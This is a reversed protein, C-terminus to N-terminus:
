VLLFNIERLKGAIIDSTCLDTYYSVNFGPKGVEKKLKEVFLRSNSNFSDMFSELITLYFTANLM